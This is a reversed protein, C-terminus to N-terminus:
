FNLPLPLKIDNEFLNSVLIEALLPAFVFGRSGLGTLIFINDDLNRCQPLTSPTTVRVSARSACQAPQLNVGTIAEFAKFNNQDDDPRVIYPDAMTLRQHTAGILIADDLPIAYGGYALIDTLPPQCTEAWSVQGRSYRLTKAFDTDRINAGITWFVHTGCAIVNDKKDLVQYGKDVAITQAARDKIFHATDTFAQRAKAPDIIQARPFSLATAGWATVSKQMHQHPLASQNLLKDFRVQEESSKPLQYIGERLVAKAQHYAQRAYLYSSLFFRSEPRDQLDLRPKVLAAPNASAATGDDPDIIIPSLGRKIFARALSAGAIGAGIIVPKIPKQPEAAIIANTIQLPPSGLYVAELRHRKRAFGPKKDVHFGAATLAECVARAVTFSALRTGPKSLAALRQMLTPSWMSPNKAPSFGDLFWADVNGSLQNFGTEADMHLLTLTVPGFELQHMGKVRGPWQQILRTSLPKLQPWASLAKHLQDADLPYKETSIFHLRSHPACSQQWCQWTALFNLGTGFGTEGIVYVSRDQWGQPLNCGALFVNQTEALGGDTSFYIDGFAHAAPTGPRSWDILPAETATLPIPAPM